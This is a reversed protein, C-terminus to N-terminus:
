HADPLARRSKGEVYLDEVKKRAWPPPLGTGARMAKRTSRSTSWARPLVSGAAQISTYFEDAKVAVARNAPLTWPTTTWIVLHENERGVIPLAVYIATSKHNEDYEIEAEALATEEVPAWLTSRLKNYVLGRQVLEGLAGVIGAENAKDMTRYPRQWDALAGLRQWESLQVESWHQAYARCRARLEALPIDTKAKKEKERLETEIKWEIPLGHCDWGPVYPSAFGAMFKHRVVLDKLVYTLLHGMHFNGNAYPPGLHVIFTPADEARRKALLKEYIGEDLWRQVWKPEREALNARMPFSTKPLNLTAGFGEAAGEQKLAGGQQQPTTTM